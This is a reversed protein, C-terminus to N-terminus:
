QNSGHAIQWHPSGCRYRGSLKAVHLYIDTGFRGGSNYRTTIYSTLNSEAPLKSYPIFISILFYVFSQLRTALDLVGHQILYMIRMSAYYVDQSNGTSLSLEELTSMAAKHINQSVDARVIGFLLFFFFGTFLLIVTRRVSMKYRFYVMYAILLLMISDIRGGYLLDKVIYFCFALMTIRIRAKTTAYCLAVTLPIMAYAFTTSVNANSHGYGGSQLINQGTKGTIALAVGMVLVTLWLAFDSRFQFPPKHYEVSKHRYSVFWYMSILFLFILMATNYVTSMNQCIVRWRSINEGFIFYRLPEYSYSLMFFQMVSFWIQKYHLSEILQWLSFVFLSLTLVKGSINSPGVGWLILWELTFLSLLVPKFRNM